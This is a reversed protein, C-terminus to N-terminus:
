TTRWEIINATEHTGGTSNETRSFTRLTTLDTLVHQDRVSTLDVSCKVRLVM